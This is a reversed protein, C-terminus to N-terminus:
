RIETTLNRLCHSDPANSLVGANSTDAINPLLSRFSHFSSSDSSWRSLLWTISIPFCLKYISSSIFIIISLFIIIIITFIIIYLIFYIVIILILIIIIM